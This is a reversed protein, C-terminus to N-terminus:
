IHILSLDDVAQELAIEHRRRKMVRVLWRKCENSMITYLWSRFLHPHRLKQLHRFAKLFVEQTIDQSDAVNRVKQYAYTYVMDQYKHVLVGFADRDGALTQSVLKEDATHM